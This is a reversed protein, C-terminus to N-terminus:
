RRSASWEKLREKFLRMDASGEALAKEYTSDMKTQKDYIPHHHIVVSNNAFAWEGRDRAVQVLENDVCQHDYLECYVVGPTEDFTGGFTDIYSRRVLSHTSHRGHKVMPNMTDQTGIVGAGTRDAVKLAEVDWGPTFELDDAALFVYPYLEGATESYGWNWKMAADAPGPRWTEVFTFVPADDLDTARCAEEQEEDGLSCVFTIAYSCTTNARISDVLPQANQPRGLVPIIIDIM